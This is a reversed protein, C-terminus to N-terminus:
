DLEFNLYIKDLVWHNNIKILFFSTFTKSTYCGFYCRKYNNFFLPKFFKREKYKLYNSSTDTNIQIKGNLFWENRILLKNTDIVIADNLNKCDNIKLNFYKNKSFTFPIKNYIAFNNICEKYNSFKSPLILVENNELYIPLFLSGNAFDNFINNIEKIERKEIKSNQATLIITCFIFSVILTLKIFLNKM